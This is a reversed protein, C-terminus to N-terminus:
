QLEFPDLNNAGRAITVRLGSSGPDAYRGGLRDPGSTALEPDDMSPDMGPPPGPWVVTVQYDGAPAGDDQERATLVFYGDADARGHPRMKRVEESGDQPYFVVYANAAPQGQCLVRGRVPYVPEGGAGCSTMALAVAGLAVALWSAPGSTCPTGTM